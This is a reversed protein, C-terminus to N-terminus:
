PCTLLLLSLSDTSLVAVYVQNGLRVLEFAEDSSPTWGPLATSALSGTTIDYSAFTLEGAAGDRWAIWVTTGDYAVRPARGVAAVQASVNGTSVIYRTEVSGTSTTWVIM